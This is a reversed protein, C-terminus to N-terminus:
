SDKPLWFGNKQRLLKSENLFLHNKEEYVKKLLCEDQEPNLIRSKIGECDGLESGIWRRNLLQAVAFTTGSGGFPDVIVDGPNTSMSIIRDMLKVSLENYKRNKTKTHRVPYIDVWVDSVNIGKPNLKLKYGGYDKIEGGCHRCIQLPIRQNNFTNARSGKIYSVLAYHAPYLRGSIPFNSKMDIAIWAWFTLYRELYSAVYVNWKPINYVFIRGGDKLVRVCEDLWEYTWNLYKSVSLNDNVKPDYRMNLNFPPDAFILDVSNSPLTRLFEICDIKYLKGLNTQFYPQIPNLTKSERKTLLSAIEKINEFYSDRYESPVFGMSLYIELQNMRTITMIGQKFKEIDPLKTRNKLDLIQAKTINLKKFHDIVQAETLGYEKAQHMLLDFLNFFQMSCNRINNGTLNNM